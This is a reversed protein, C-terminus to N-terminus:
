IKNKKKMIPKNEKEQKNLLGEFFFKQSCTKLKDSLAFYNDNTPYDNYIYDLISSYKRKQDRCDYSIEENMFKDQQVLYSFYDLEIMKDKNIFNNILGDLSFGINKGIWGDNRWNEILNKTPYILDSLSIDDFYDGFNESLHKSLNQYVGISSCTMLFLPANKALVKILKDSQEKDFVSYYTNSNSHTYYSSWIVRSIAPVVGREFAANNEDTLKEYYENLIVEVGDIVKNIDFNNKLYDADSEDSLKDPDRPRFDRYCNSSSLITYLKLNNSKAYEVLKLYDQESKEFNRSIMDVLSSGDNVGPAFLIDPQSNASQIFKIVEEVSYPKKYFGGVRMKYNYIIEHPSKEILIEKYFDENTSIISFIASLPLNELLKDVIVRNEKESFSSLKIDTEDNYRINAKILEVFLSNDLNEMLTTFDLSNIYKLFSDTRFRMSNIENFKNFDKNVLLTYTYESIFDQSILDSLSEIKNDLIKSEKQYNQYIESDYYDDGNSNKKQFEEYLNKNKEERNSKEKYLLLLKELINIQEEKNIEVTYYKKFEPSKLIFTKFEDNKSLSEKSNKIYTILFSEVGESEINHFLTRLTSFPLEKNSDLLIKRQKKDSMLLLSLYEEDIDDLVSLKFVDNEINSVVNEKKSKKLSVGTYNEILKVSDKNLLISIKSLNEEEHKKYHSKNKRQKDIVQALQLLTNINSNELLINELSVEKFYLSYEMINYINNGARKMINSTKSIEKLYIAFCQAFIREFEADVGKLYMNSKYHEATRSLINHIDYNELETIFDPNEVVKNIILRNIHNNKERYEREDDMRSWSYSKNYVKFFKDLFKNDIIIEFQEQSANLKVYEYIQPERNGYTNKHVYEQSLLIDQIKEKDTKLDQLSFNDIHRTYTNEFYELPTLIEKVGKIKIWDDYSRYDDKIILSILFDKDNDDFVYNEFHRFTLRNKNLLLKKYEERYKKDEFYEPNANFITTSFTKLLKSDINYIDEKTFGKVSAHINNLIKDEDNNKYYNIIEESLENLLEKTFKTKKTITDGSLLNNTLEEENLVDNAIDNDGYGSFYKRLMGIQSRSLKYNNLIFNLSFVSVTEEKEDLLFDLPPLLEQRKLLYLIYGQTEEIQTDLLEKNKVVENLFSPKVLDYLDKM